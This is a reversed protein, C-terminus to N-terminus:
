GASGECLPDGALDKAKMADAASSGSRTLVAGTFRAQKGCYYSCGEPVSAPLTVTGGSIRAEITCTRDGEMTLTLREGSRVASGAGSCSHMEAGWLNIGFRANGSGKDIVCLQSRQPGDGGEYLGTLRATAVASASAEEGEQQVAARNAAAPSADNGGEPADSGGCGAVLLLMAVIIPKKM